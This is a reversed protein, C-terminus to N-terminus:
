HRTIMVASLSVDSVVKDPHLRFLVIFTYKTLYFIFTPLLHATLARFLPSTPLLPLGELINYVTSLGLIHSGFLNFFIPERLFYRRVVYWPVRKKFDM